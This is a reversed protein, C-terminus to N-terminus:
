RYAYWAIGGYQFKEPPYTEIIHNKEAENM